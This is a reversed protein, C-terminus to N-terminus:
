RRGGGGEGADPAPEPRRALRPFARLHDQYLTEYRQVRDPEPHLLRTAAGHARGVAEPDAPDPGARGTLLAAGYAAASELAVSRVPRDLVDALLAEFVPAQGAEGGAVRIEPETATGLGLVELCRRVEMAVGELLARMLEAPGHRLGLGAIVGAVDPRWIAGQEGGALYPAIRVGCAGLPVDGAAALLADAGRGTLTALWAVASGTSLLDMELGYWGPVAHPTVLYRRRRDLRRSRSSALVVTSSGAVLTVRGPALGGAGAVAAVSDAAGVHVPTGAAVGWAAALAPSLRGPASRAPEIPPVQGPTLGWLALLEPDWRGTRLRLAGYGAATSPDTALAGTLELYLYDKASLVLEASRGARGYHYAYMPGVYRGDIPMGTLRYLTRRRAGDLRADLWADARADMWTVAPGLPHGGGLAVLSPIQGTLALARTGALPLRRGLAAMASGLAVLWDAPDQEMRGTAPDGLMPYVAREVAVVAGQPDVAVAKVSSTGLDIGVM